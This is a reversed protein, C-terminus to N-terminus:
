WLDLFTLPRQCEMLSLTEEGSSVQMMCFTCVAVFHFLGALKPSEGDCDFIFADVKEVLAQKDQDSARRAAPM